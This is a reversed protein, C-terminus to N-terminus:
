EVVPFEEFLHGALVILDQVDVIGDGWPMPGIDCLKNDTGWHDVMICMDASDVIGDGNLDVIPIIPAQYIDSRGYGEPRISDFYFTSGDPSVCGGIERDSTNIIPGLNVPTAWKSDITPRTTMWIDTSGYGGARYHGVFEDESIFLALGDASISAILDVSPGDVPPGLRVPEEWEDETTARTSRYIPSPSFGSSPRTSSFYLELGDSTIWVTGENGATNVLPGFNEAPGWASDKTPRKNVWVDFSGYGGPRDHVDYYLELGDPSLRPMMEDRSINVNHGLRVRTGWDDDMTARKAVFIDWSGHNVVPHRSNFYLELGDLSVSPCIESQPGNITPGLNVPEGFTFDAKATGGGPVAVAVFGALVIFIQSSNFWKM